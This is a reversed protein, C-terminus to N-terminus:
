KNNIRNWYSLIVKDSGLLDEFTMKALDVARTHKCISALRETFKLTAEFTEINLTSHWLRIEITNTNTLNISYYRNQYSSYEKAEIVTQKIWGAKGNYNQKRSRCWDSCQSETRRSFKMLQPRFKEFLYLMKAISSDEKSGFYRKDLHFHMGATSIDHGKMDNDMLYEFTKKYKPMLSLHHELTAPHSIIEFGYNLSGDNEMNVFDCLIEKVGEAIKERDVRHESDTELEFGIHLVNRRDENGYFVIDGYDKMSHYSAIIPKHNPYCDDCYWGDDVEHLDDEYRFREGCDLCRYTESIFCDHCYDYDSDVTRYSDDNRIYKGCIDCTCVCDHCYHEGDIRVADRIFILEGCDACFCFYEEFMEENMTLTVTLDDNKVYNITMTKRKRETKLKTKGLDKSYKAPITLITKSIM